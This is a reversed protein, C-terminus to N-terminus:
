KKTRKVFTSIIGLCIGLMLVMSHIHFTLSNIELFVHPAIRSSGEGYFYHEFIGTVGALFVLIITAIIGLVTFKNIKLMSYVM